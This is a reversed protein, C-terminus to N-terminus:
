QRTVAVARRWSHVLNTFIPAAAAIIKEGKEERKTKGNPREEQYANRHPRVFEKEQDKDRAIQIKKGIEIGNVIGDHFDNVNAGGGGNYIGNTELFGDLAGIVLSLIGKQMPLKRCRGTCANGQERM